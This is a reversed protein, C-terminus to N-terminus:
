SVFKIVNKITYDCRIPKGVASWCSGVRRGRSCTPIGSGSAALSWMKSENQTNCAQQLFSLFCLARYPLVSMCIETSTLPMTPKWRWSACALLHCPVTKWPLITNTVGHHDALSVLFISVTLFGLCVRFPKLNAPRAQDVSESSGFFIETGFAM